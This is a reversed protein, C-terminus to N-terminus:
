AAAYVNRMHTIEHSAEARRIAAAFRRDRSTENRIAEVSCGVQKAATALNCGVNVIGCIRQKQQEDFSDERGDTSM